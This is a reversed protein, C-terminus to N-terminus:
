NGALPPASNGKAEDLVGARQQGVQAAAKFCALFLEPYDPDRLLDFFQDATVPVGADDTLNRVPPELLVHEILCEINIERREATLLKREDGGYKQAARRQRAAQADYYADTFGRTNIELDDYEDGVRIWEGNRILTSNQRFSSFKAM